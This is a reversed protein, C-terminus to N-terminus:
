DRGEERLADRLVLLESELPDSISEAADLLANVATIRRTREAKSLRAVNRAWEEDRWNGALPMSDM